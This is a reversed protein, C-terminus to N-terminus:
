EKETMGWFYSDLYFLLSGHAAYRSGSIEEYDKEMEQEDEGKFPDVKHTKL